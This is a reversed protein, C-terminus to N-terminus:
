WVLGVWRGMTTGMFDAIFKKVSKDTMARMVEGEQEVPESKSPPYIEDWCGDCFTFIMNGVPNGCKHCADKYESSQIIQRMNGSGDWWINATGGYPDVKTEELNNANKPPQQRNNAEDPVIVKRPKDTHCQLQGNYKSWEDYKKDAERETDFYHNGEGQYSSTHVHWKEEGEFWEGVPLTCTTPLKTLSEAHENFRQVAVNFSQRNMVLGQDVPKEMTPRVCLGPSIMLYKM